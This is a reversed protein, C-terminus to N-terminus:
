AEYIIYLIHYLITINYGPSSGGTLGWILRLKGGSPGLQQFGHFVDNPCFYGWAGIRWIQSVSDLNYSINVYRITYLFLTRPLHFSLDPKIFLISTLM